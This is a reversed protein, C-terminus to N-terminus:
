VLRGYSHERVWIRQFWPRKLLASIAEEPPQHATNPAYLASEAALRIAELAKTSDAQEEGLWVIVRSARAYIEGMMPIQHEKEINNSQDICVADVWIVRPIDYDQLHLLAVHLNQMVAFEQDDKQDEVIIISHTTQEEVEQSGWVYSLAEYPRTAEDSNQM